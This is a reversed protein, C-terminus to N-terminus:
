RSGTRRRSGGPPRSTPWRRRSTSRVDRRVGRRQPHGGLDGRHRERRREAVHVLVRPRQLRRARHHGAIPISAPLPGFAFLGAANAPAGTVALAFGTAGISPKKNGALLLPGNVGPTSAGYSELGDVGDPTGDLDRDIGIRTSRAPASARSRGRRAPSRRPGCRPRRSRGSGPRTARTPRHGRDPLRLRASARRPDGERRHRLQGRRGPERSARDHLLTAPANANTATVTIQLGVTPAMGTDVELLFAALDDKKVAPWPNFVPLTLFSIPTDISGDHILGFGSKVSGPANLFGLKRYVNRIQPVNM